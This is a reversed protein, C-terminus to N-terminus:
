SKAKLEDIAKQLRDIKWRALTSPAYAKGTKPDTLSLKVAEDVLADLEPDDDPLTELLGDAAALEDPIDANGDEDATFIKGGVIVDRGPDTKFNM